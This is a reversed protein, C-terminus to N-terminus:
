RVKRPVRPVRPVYGPVAPNKCTRVNHGYQHCKNCMNKQDSRRLRTNDEDPERRRLKKPKGPGRKYTPPLVEDYQTKPWKDQGNIPSIEPSYTRVYADRKYYEHVYSEPDERHFNIASV